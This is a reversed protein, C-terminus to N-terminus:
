NTTIEAFLRSMTFLSQEENLILVGPRSLSRSINAPPQVDSSSSQMSVVHRPWSSDLQLVPTVTSSYWDSLCRAIVNIYCTVLIGPFCYYINFALIRQRTSHLLLEGSNSLSSTSIAPTQVDSSSAVQISRTPSSSLKLIPPM